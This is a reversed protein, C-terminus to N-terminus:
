RMVMCHVAFAEGAGVVYGVYYYPQTPVAPNDLCIIGRPVVMDLQCVCLLVPDSPWRNDTLM